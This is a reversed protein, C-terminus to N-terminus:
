RKQRYGVPTCGVRQRFINQFYAPSQFGVHSSIAAATWDTERLLAQAREIRYRTLLEIFTVGTEQRVRRCFQPPSLYMAAAAEALKVPRYFNAEIYENLEGCFDHPSPVRPVHTERPGPHSFHGAELERALMIFIIHLLNACLTEHGNRAATAEDMLTKFLGAAAVDRILHADTL